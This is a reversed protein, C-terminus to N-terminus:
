EVPHGLRELIAEMVEIEAGQTDIVAQAIAEVEPDDSQELYASAMDVASQHHPIMALLFDVDPDGTYEIGEMSQMMAAMAEAHPGGEMAGGGMAGHDMGSMGGTSQAHVPGALLAAALALAAPITTIKM